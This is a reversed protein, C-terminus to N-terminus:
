IPVMHNFVGNLPCSLSKKREVHFKCFNEPTRYKGTLAIHRLDSIIFSVNLAAACFTAEVNEYRFLTKMM